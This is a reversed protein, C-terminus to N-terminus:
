LQAHTIDAGTGPFRYHQSVSSEDRRQRGACIADKRCKECGICPQFQYGTLRVAEVAVGSRGAGNLIHKMLVDSNGGKRPSAGIGTIRREPLYAGAKDQISVNGRM